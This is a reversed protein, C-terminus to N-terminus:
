VKVFTVTTTATTQHEGAVRKIDGEFIAVENYSYANLPYFTTDPYSTVSAAFKHMKDTPYVDQGIDNKADILTIPVTVIIQFYGVDFRGVDISAGCGWRIRRRQLM